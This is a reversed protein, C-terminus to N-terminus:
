FCMKLVTAKFPFKKKKIQEMKNKPYYYMKVIKICYIIGVILQYWTVYMSQNTNKLIYIMNYAIIINLISNMWNFQIIPFCLIAMLDYDTLWKVM